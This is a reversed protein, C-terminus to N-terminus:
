SNTLIDNPLSPKCNIMFWPFPCYFTAFRLVSLVIALLSLAFLSRCFVVCFVLYQVDRDCCFGPTFEPAGSYSTAEKIVNFKTLLIFFFYNQFSLCSTEKWQVWYTNIWTVFWYKMTMYLLSIIIHQGFDQDKMTPPWHVCLKRHKTKDTKTRHRTGLTTEPEPIEMRSQEM